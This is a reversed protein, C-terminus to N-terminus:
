RGLHSRFRRKRWKAASYIWLGKAFQVVECYWKGDDSEMNFDSSILTDHGAFPAVYPNRDFGDASIEFDARIEFPRQQRQAIGSASPESPRMNAPMASIKSLAGLYWSSGFNIM